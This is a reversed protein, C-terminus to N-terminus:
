GDPGTPDVCAHSRRWRRRRQELLVTGAGVGGEPDNKLKKGRNLFKPPPITALGGFTTKAIEYKILKFIKKKAIFCFHSTSMPLGFTPFNIIKNYHFSESQFRKLVKFSIFITYHRPRRIDDKYM